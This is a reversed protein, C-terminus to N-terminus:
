ADDEEARKKKPRGGKKKSPQIKNTQVQTSFDISTDDRKAIVIHQVTKDQTEQATLGAVIPAGEFPAIHRKEQLTVVNRPNVMLPKNTIQSAEPPKTNQKYSGDLAVIARHKKRANLKPSLLDHVKDRGIPM